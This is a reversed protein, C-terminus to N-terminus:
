IRTRTRDCRTKVKGARRGREGLCPSGSESSLVKCVNSNSTGPMLSSNPFFTRCHLHFQEVYEDPSMPLALENIIMNTSDVSKRGMLKVKLDWTYVKGHPGVVAQTAETYL